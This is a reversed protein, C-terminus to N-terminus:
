LVGKKYDHIFTYPGALLCALGVLLVVILVDSKPTTSVRLREKYAKKVEKTIDLSFLKLLMYFAGMCAHFVAYVALALQINDSM